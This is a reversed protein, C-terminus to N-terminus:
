FCPPQWFLSMVVPRCSHRLVPSPLSLLPTAFWRVSLLVLLLVLLLQQPSLSLLSVLSSSSSLCKERLLFILLLNKKFFKSGTEQLKTKQTYVDDTEGSVSIKRKKVTIETEGTM